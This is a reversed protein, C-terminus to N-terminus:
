WTDVFRKKGTRPAPPPSSQLATTVWRRSDIPDIVEDIEFHSAMNVAKGHEYMRDVMVEFTKRREEPDEIAELEKRFGLKVAGELGMGGFEATPWAVTFLGAKFSGGAMAQAGLGYGKRLVITFLPVSVGAGTVFMRAAHRVLATKEVEPGVMIGPTDCLFLLPIDFADCLQMFRAAKDAGDSDIAGALHTPNNAVIGVPRGEIRALATVMGLGFSRRLELVSATDALTEIVERVDYIRRRNEPIIGRLRRQDACEWDSTRGQFYSLYKKAVVVAEAEDAVAIDVVGGPVQVDMPGVEEPRFVGLGGGEIMAPGGMGINSNKTAIVVDCCGLLAANGAFCRGSNIGVLPVLGSLGAFYAFALCDLGAVGAGDTDGPRGGGGETLFVVPLHSKEAIEFMRDKKRHNQLGQTGALVTYDYSLVMCRAAEPEFVDGNVTGIGAVLGDAPTKEILDEVSRRRRQAAIVLPGYEVFSGEDCLDDVNERATRQRTKRRREVSAPRRDDYGVAHREHVEALDPRIRDLDVEDVQEDARVDVSAEEVFLLAHGEFVADGVSVGLRRVLGAVPATVVHEMKMAEMVLLAQGEYVADGEAVEIALITGQLPARVAQTGEPAAVEAPGAAPIPAGGVPAGEGGKGHRLVALPDSADVQAGALAPAAGSPAEEFSSGAASPMAALLDSANEEVFRTHVRNALVDPHRLLARLFGVNTLVGDVKLEGLARETRAVAGAFDGDPHSVVLKALLSDYRPSTAYGGYGFTDVRIGPGSPMEFAQLTGGAPRAEGDATMTEMNIRAQIAFGRPAPIRAAELGLDVLTRGGAIELQARVLDIGTVEETVTHEVQLRANAEIFAIRPDNTADAGVLFEFTGLSEFHAKEALTLAAAVLRERVADPLGVSPAIEVIKQHRRQLTCEREGLASVQGTADGLVQVEIHRAPALLQEVYVEGSGFAAQAESSCREYAAPLESADRVIRMGRGGGGSVAKLLVPTGGHNEFFARADGLSTAGSTGPLLPVGLEEALARARAKDGFLDLTDPTPGVFRLGAEGCLRAFAGSEALFGYGPHVADCGADKAVAVVQAADLYAAPGVGALPRAEDARLRHLCRDDDQSYVAVTRIGLDAAARCVRIAIEGRNAVLLSALTM